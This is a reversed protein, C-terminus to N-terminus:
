DLVLGTISLDPANSGATEDETLIRMALAMERTMGLM